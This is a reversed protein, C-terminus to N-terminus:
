KEMIVIQEKSLSAWKMNSSRRTGPIIREIRYTKRFGRNICDSLVSEVAEYRDKEKVDNSFFPLVYCLVGGKRICEYIKCNCDRMDSIYEEITGKNNRRYRAGIEARISEYLSINEIYYSLRQSKIYDVMRPYPPSTIVLDVKDKLKDINAIRFDGCTVGQLESGTYIEVTNSLEKYKSIENACRTVTIRFKDIAKKYKKKSEQPKVNDAIYAWGGNQSCAKKVTNLMCLHFLNCIGQNEYSNDMLEDYKQVLFAIENFTKSDYWENLYCRMETLHERYNNDDNYENLMSIIKNKCERIDVFPSFLQLYDEAIKCAIINNDYLIPVRGQIIAQVLTTGIGGFPDMVIDMPKSLVEIISFPIEPVFTAPYSYYKRNNFPSISNLNSNKRNEFNWNISELEEIATSEM